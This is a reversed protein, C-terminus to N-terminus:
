LKCVLLVPALASSVVKYSIRAHWMNRLGLAVQM